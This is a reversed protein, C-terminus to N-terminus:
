NGVTALSSHTLGINDRALGIARDASVRQRLEVRQRSSVGFLDALRWIVNDELANVKGDAYVIEWM